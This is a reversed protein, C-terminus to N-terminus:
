SCGSSRRRRHSAWMSSSYPSPPPLLQRLLVAGECSESAPVDGRGRLQASHRQAGVLRVLEQETEIQRITRTVISELVPGRDDHLLHIEDLIILKVLQTYARDGAKRTIIDWKEPTTVILQTSEIQERSLQQDGSLEAVKIGYVALRKGFNLVMEQVLSKMPAIYVAKWKDLQYSGDAGRYAGIEHLLCLM